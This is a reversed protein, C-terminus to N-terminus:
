GKKSPASPHRDLASRGAASLIQDDQPVHVRSCLVDRYHRELPNRRSLGRNGTLALAQEVASVAARQGGLKAPGADALATPDGTDVGDATCEVVRHAVRLSAEIEGIASQLRPLTALSAGLATPVRTHLFGALWETAADAVGLYLSTLGLANWAGFVADAGSRVVTPLALGVVDAVPVPADELLVDDSRSARLGLHDWTPEVTVGGREPRVIFAGTRPTEEDTRALVLMRSLGIAGTSYIKRGSLLWHDGARRAVTAPLGGRSPTGLEPEVRLANVLAPGHESDRLLSDYAGAPWEDTVAQVAHTLLTWASILAVSPDGKGLAHLIRTTDALGLGPGGYRTAVTATLLGARHVLRLGESPFAASRDNAEARRALAVTVDPLADLDPRPLRPASEAPPAAPGPSHGSPHGPLNGVPFGPRTGLFEISV